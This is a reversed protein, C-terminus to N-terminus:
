IVTRLVRFVLIQFIALSAFIPSLPFRKQLQKIAQQLSQNLFNTLEDKTRKHADPYIDYLEKYAAMIGESLAKKDSRYRKWIDTPTGSTDILNIFRLITLLSADNSSTFGISKLWKIDAKGPVGVGQIKKLVEPIKGTVTSYPYEAM